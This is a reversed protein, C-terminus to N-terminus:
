LEFNYINYPYVKAFVNKRLYIKIHNTRALGDKFSYQSLYKHNKIKRIETEVTCCVPEFANHCPQNRILRITNFNLKLILNKLIKKGIREVSRSKMECHM